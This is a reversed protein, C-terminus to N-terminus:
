AFINFYQKCTNILKCNLNPHQLVMLNPNIIIVHELTKDFQWNILTFSKQHTNSETINEM